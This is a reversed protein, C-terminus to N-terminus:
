AAGKEAKDMLQELRAANRGAMWLGFGTLFANGGNLQGTIRALDNRLTGCLGEIDFLLKADFSPPLSSLRSRLAGAREAVADVRGLLTGAARLRNEVKGTGAATM